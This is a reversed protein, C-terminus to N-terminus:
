KGERKNTHKGILYGAVFIMATQLVDLILHEGM